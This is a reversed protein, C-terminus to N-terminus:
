LRCRLANRQINETRFFSANHINLTTLDLKTCKRLHDFSKGVMIPFVISIFLEGAVADSQLVDDESRSIAEKM